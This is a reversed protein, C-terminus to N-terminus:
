ADGSFKRGPVFLFWFLGRKRSPLTERCRRIEQELATVATRRESETLTHNSYRSKRALEELVPIERGGWARVGCYWKYADLVARNRDAGTCIRRWQRRRVGRLGGIALWLGALGLPWWVVANERDDAGPTEPETVPDPADPAPLAPEGPIAAGEAGTEEGAPTAEVPYWGYGELYVETWAHANRDLVSVTREPGVTVLYGSVYRAPIGEMRLLLTLATAFHVCYGRRSEGLFYELFPREQGSAPTQDDYRCCAALRDAYWQAMALRDTGDPPSEGLETLWNQLVARTQEPVAGYWRAAFNRYLEEARRKGTMREGFREDPVQFRMNWTVGDETEYWADQQFCLTGGRPIETLQYPTYVTNGGEGVTRLKLQYVTTEQEIPPLLLTNNLFGSQEVAQALEDLAAEELGSWVGDDSYAAYSGGRLYLTGEYVTELELVNRGFYRRPGAKGLDVPPIPSVPEPRAATEAGWDAQELRQRLQAAWSPQVYGERPLVGTLFVLLLFSMMCGPLAMWAPGETGRSGRLLFLTMWCAALVTLAGWSLPIQALFAPLMWPLTLLVAAWPRRRPVAAWGLPLAWAFALIEMFRTAALEREAATWDAPLSVAAAFIRRSVAEWVVLCGQVLTEREMVAVFILLVAVAHMAAKRRRPLQWLGAACVAALVCHGTLQAAAVPIDYTKWLFTFLATEMLLLLGGSGLWAPIREGKGM